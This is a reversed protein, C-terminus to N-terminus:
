DLTTTSNGDDLFKEIDVKEGTGNRHNLLEEIDVYKTAADVEEVKKVPIGLWARLKNAGCKTTKHWDRLWWLLKGFVQDIRQAMSVKPWLAKAYWGTFHQCNRFFNHFGGRGVQQIYARGITILEQDTQNLSGLYRITDQRYSYTTWNKVDLYILGTNVSNRLELILGDDPRTVKKGSKPFVGTEQYEEPPEPSVLLAWHLLPPMASMIKGVVPQVIKGLPIKFIREVPRGIFYGYRTTTTNTLIVDEDVTTPVDELSMTRYLKQVLIRSGPKIGDSFPIPSCSVGALLALLLVWLISRMSSWVYRMCSAILCLREM